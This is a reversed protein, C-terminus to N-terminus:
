RAMTNTIGASTQECRTAFKNTFAEPVANTADSAASVARLLRQLGATVSMTSLATHTM